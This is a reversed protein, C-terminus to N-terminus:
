GRRTSKFGPEMLSSFHDVPMRSAPKPKAPRGALDMSPNLVASADGQTASGHMSGSDVSFRDLRPGLTALDAASRGRSSGGPEGESTDMASASRSPAGGTGQSHWSGGAPSIPDDWDTKDPWKREGYPKPNLNKDPWKREAYQEVSAAGGGPIGHWREAYSSGAQSGATAVGNGGEGPSSRDTEPEAEIKATRLSEVLAAALDPDLEEGAAQPSGGRWGGVESERLLDALTAKSPDSGM